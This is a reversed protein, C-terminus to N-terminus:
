YFVFAPDRWPWPELRLCTAEDHHDGERLFFCNRAVVPREHWVDHGDGLGEADDMRSREALRLAQGRQPLLRRRRRDGTPAAPAPEQYQRPDGDQARRRLEEPFRRREM